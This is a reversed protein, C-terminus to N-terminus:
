SISVPLEPEEQKMKDFMAITSNLKDVFFDVDEKSNYFYCSARASGSADFIKHLPQTCHHGARIAVGEQDLFFSLDNSHIGDVNFAVLGARTSEGDKGGKPGYIRVGPIENLRKYLHNGLIAEHEEIRKMGIEQLYECAAGLGIAEAVPPTGAEFRAPPPLYTSGELKVEDIMEGGGQVPPMQLMVDYKGYLFGIGTPGCMKHGSAALFDCELDQVDVHMHPVSQCADVVVVAGVKHAEQSIKKIPNICGLTNSVHVISVIKTRENLLSILHDMDLTEEETLKAFKLVAGTREALMQWPVLNSHHEMVSLVIEDGPKLKQGWGLAVVNLANTAGQMFAIEERKEANIFTKVQDRAKEYAETARTSLAHVGRHVNAHDKKYYEDMAELVQTPKQSSAGSDLYVLPVGPYADTELIPFDNRNISNLPEMGAAACLADQSRRLGPGLQLYSVSGTSLGPRSYIPGTRLPMRLHSPKGLATGDLRTHLHPLDDLFSDIIQASHKTRQFLRDVLNEIAVQSDARLALPFLSMALMGRMM